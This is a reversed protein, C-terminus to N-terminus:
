RARRASGSGATGHRVSLSRSRAVRLGGRSLSVLADARWRKAEAERAFSKRIKKGDRKSFVWAEYGANCNCRKGKRSRPLGQTGSASARLWQGAGQVARAACRRSEM